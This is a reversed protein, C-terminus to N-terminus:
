QTKQVHLALPQRFLCSFPFYNVSSNSNLLLIYSSLRVLRFRFGFNLNYNIIKKRNMLKTQKHPVSALFPTREYVENNQETLKKFSCRNVIRM